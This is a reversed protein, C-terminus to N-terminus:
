LMDIEEFIPKMDTQKKVCGDYNNEQNQKEDM